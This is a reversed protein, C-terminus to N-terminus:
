VGRQRRENKVNEILCRNKRGFLIFWIMVYLEESLINIYEYIYIYWLVNVSVYVCM